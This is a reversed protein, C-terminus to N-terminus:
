TVIKIIKTTKNTIKFRNDLRKGVIWCIEGNNELVWVQEKEFRSLKLDIFYDSLKKKGKMGFPIFVDGAKWKRLVFPFQIKNADFYAVDPEFKLNIPEEKTVELKIPESYSGLNIIYVVEDEKKERVLILFSEEKYMLHTKSFFQSGRQKSNLVGKLQANNFGYKSVVDLLFFISVSDILKIKIEEDIEQVYSGWDEELKLQLYKETSILNDITNVIGKKANQHVNELEPIIKHRLYNRSYKLSANSSDDRYSINSEAIYETILEKSINLLPRIINETILPISRLGKIGTGRVANIFFTEILDSQHHGTVIYDFSNNKSLEKFWNYRLSRAEEQISTKNAEAIDKTKFRIFNGKVKLSSSLGRVFDEDGNSEEGRLQFNCHAIEFNLNLNYFVNMLCISDSGGSVALLYKKSKFSEDLDILQSLVLSELQKM